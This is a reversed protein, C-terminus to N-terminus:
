LLPKIYHYLELGKDQGYKAVINRYVVLKVNKEKQNKCVISAVSNVIEASYNKEKLVKQVKKNLGPEKSTNKVESVVSKIHKKVLPKILEYVKHFDETLNKLNCHISSLAMEEKIGDSIVKKVSEIMSQSYGSSLLLKEIDEEINSSPNEDATQNPELQSDFSNQADDNQPSTKTPSEKVILLQNDSTTNKVSTIIKASSVNITAQRKITIGYKEKWFSIINDYDKDKSIVVFNYKNGLIGIAYGVFSILHMDLSQSGGPVKIFEYRCCSKNLLNINDLTINETNATYFIFFFDDKSLGKLNSLGANHVNEFDVFFCNAM